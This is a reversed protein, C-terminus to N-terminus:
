LAIWCQSSLRATILASTQRRHEGLRRLQQLDDRRVRGAQELPLQQELRMALASSDGGVRRQVEHVYAKEIDVEVTSSM